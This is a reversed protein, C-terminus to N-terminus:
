FTMGLQNKQRQFNEKECSEIWESIIKNAVSNALSQETISMRFWAESTCKECCSYLYFSTIRGLWARRNLGPDSLHIASTNPWEEIVKNCTDAFKGLDLLLSHARRPQNRDHGCVSKNFYGAKYCEMKQYHTFARNDIWILDNM